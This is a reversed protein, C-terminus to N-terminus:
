SKSGRRRTGGVRRRRHRSTQNYQRVNDMMEELHYGRVYKETDGKSFVYPRGNIGATKLRNFFAELNAEYILPDRKFYAKLHPLNRTLHARIYAKSNAPMTFPIIFNSHIRANYTINQPLNHAAVSESDLIYFGTRSDISIRMIQNNPQTYDENFGSSVQAPTYTYGDPEFAAMIFTQLHKYLSRQAYIANENSKLFNSLTHYDSQLFDNLSLVGNDSFIYLPYIAYSKKNKVIYHKFDNNIRQPSFELCNQDRRYLPHIAIEPVSQINRSNSIVLPLSNALFSKNHARMSAAMKTRFAGADTGSIAIYGNLHPLLEMTAQTFCPNQNDMEFGCSDTESLINCTVYADTLPDGSPYEERSDNSPLVLLMLELEYQTYCLMHINFRNVADSAYPAPYFFMQSHPSVTFINYKVGSYEDIRPTPRGTFYEFYERHYTKKEIGHFLITGKPITITEFTKGSSLTYQKVFSEM